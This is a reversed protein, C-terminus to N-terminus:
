PRRWICQGVRQVHHEVDADLQHQVVLDVRCPLLLDDLATLLQLRHAHTLGPAELCLDIDSGLQYRGIARSGLLTSNGQSRLLDRLTNWAM